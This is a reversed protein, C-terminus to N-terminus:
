LGKKRIEELQIDNFCLKSEDCNIREHYGHSDAVLKDRVSHGYIRGGSSIVNNSSLADNLGSRMDIMRNTGWLLMMVLDKAVEKTNARNMDSYSFHSQSVISRIQNLLTEIKAFTHKIKETGVRNPVHKHKKREHRHARNNDRDNVIDVIIVEFRKMLEDVDTHQITLPNRGKANPFLTFLAERNETRLMEVIYKDLASNIRDIESPSTEDNFHIIGKPPNIKTRSVPKVHNLSTKLQNFFGGSGLMSKGFSSLDIVLMSWVDDILSAIIDNRIHYKKDQTIIKLQEEFELLFYLRRKIKQLTDEHERLVEELTM